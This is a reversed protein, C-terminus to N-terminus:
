AHIICYISFRYLIRNQFYKEELAIRWPKKSMQVYKSSSFVFFCLHSFLYFKTFKVQTLTCTYSHFLSVIMLNSRIQIDLIFATTNKFCKVRWLESSSTQKVIKCPQVFLQDIVSYRQELCTRVSLGQPSRFVLLREPFVEERPHIWFWNGESTVPIIVSGSGRIRHLTITRCTITM